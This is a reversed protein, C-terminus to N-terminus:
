SKGNTSLGAPKSKSITLALSLQSQTFHSQLTAPPVHLISTSPAPDQQTSRSQSPLPSASIPLTVTVSQDPMSELIHVFRSVINFLFYLHHAVDCLLYCTSASESRAFCLGPRSPVVRRHEAPFRSVRIFGFLLIEEWRAGHVLCIADKM